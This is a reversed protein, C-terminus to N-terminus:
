HQFRFQIPASSSVVFDVRRKSKMRTNGYKLIEEQQEILRSIGEQTSPLYPSGTQM